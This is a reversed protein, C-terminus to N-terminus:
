MDVKLNVIIFLRAQNITIIINIIQDVVLLFYFFEFSFSICLFIATKAPSPIPGSIMVSAKFTKCAISFYLWEKNEAHVFQHTAMSLSGVESFGNLNCILRHLRIQLLLLDSIQYHDWHLLVDRVLVELEEFLM